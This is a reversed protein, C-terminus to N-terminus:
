LNWMRRRSMTWKQSMTAVNKHTEDILEAYEAMSNKSNEQENHFIGTERVTENETNKISNEIKEEKENNSANKKEMREMLNM